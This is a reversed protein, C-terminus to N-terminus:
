PEAHAPEQLEPAPCAHPAHHAFRRAGTQKFRRLSFLVASPYAQLGAQASAHALAAHVAQRDRGHVM